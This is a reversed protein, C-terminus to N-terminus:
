QGLPGSVSPHLLLLTAGTGPQGLTVLQCTVSFEELYHSIMEPKLDQRQLGGGRQGGDGAPPGQGVPAGRRQGGLQGARLLHM